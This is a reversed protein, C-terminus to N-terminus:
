WHYFKSMHEYIKTSETHYIECIWCFYHNCKLCFVNNCGDNKQIAVSCSPCLKRNLVDEAMWKNTNFCKESAELCTMNPHKIAKCEVCHHKGCMHCISSGEKLFCIGSCKIDKCLHVDKTTSAYKEFAFMALKELLGGKNFVSIDKMSIEHECNSEVCKVPITRNSISMQITQEVCERCYRHKCLSLAYSKLQVECFCVPCIKDRGRSKQKNITEAEVDIVLDAGIIEVVAKYSEEAGFYQDAKCLLLNSNSCFVPHVIVGTKDKHFHEERNLKMLLNIKQSSNMQKLHIMALAHSFMLEYLLTHVNSRNKASGYVVFRDCFVDIYCKFHVGLMEIFPGNKRVTSLTNVGIHPNTHYTHTLSQFLKEIQSTLASLSLLDDINCRVFIKDGSSSKVIDKANLNTKFAELFQHSFLDYLKRYVLVGLTPSRIKEDIVIFSKKSLLYHISSYLRYNPVVITLTLTSRSKTIQPFMKLHFTDITKSLYKLIKNKLCEIDRQFDKIRQNRDDVLDYDSSSLFCNIEKAIQSPSYLIPVNHLILDNNSLTVDYTTHTKIKEIISPILHVDHVKIKTRSTRDESNTKVTLQIDTIIKYKTYSDFYFAIDEDQMLVIDEVHESAARCMNPTDFEVCGWVCDPLEPHNSYPNFKIIKGYRNLKNMVDSRTLRKDETNQYILYSRKQDCTLIDKVIGGKSVLLHNKSQQFPFPIELLETDLHHEVDRITSLLMRFANHEVYKPIYMTVSRESLSLCKELSLGCERKLFVRLKYLLISESNNLNLKLFKLVHRNLNDAECKVDQMKRAKRFTNKPCNKRIMDVAVDEEVVVGRSILSDEDAFHLVVIFEAAPELNYLVSTHRVEHITFTHLMLYRPPTNSPRQKNLLLCLNHEYVDILEANIQANFHSNDKQDLTPKVPKLLTSMDLFSMIESNLPKYCQTGGTHKSPKIIPMEKFSHKKKRLKNQSNLKQQCEKEVYSEILDLNHQQLEHDRVWIKAYKDSLITKVKRWLKLINVYTIADGLVYCM